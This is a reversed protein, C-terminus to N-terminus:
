RGAGPLITWGTVRWGGRQRRLLVQNRTRGTAAQSALATREHLEVVARARRGTQTIQPPRALIAISSAREAQLGALQARTPRARALRRRYGSTALRLATRPLLSDLDCPWWARLIM